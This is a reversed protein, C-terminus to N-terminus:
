LSVFRGIRLFPLTPTPYQRDKPCLRQIEHVGFLLPPNWSIYHSQPLMGCLVRGGNSYASVYSLRMLLFHSALRPEQIFVGESLGNSRLSPPSTALLAPTAYLRWGVASHELSWTAGTSRGARFPRPRPTALAVFFIRGVDPLKLAVGRM